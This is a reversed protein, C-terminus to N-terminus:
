PSSQRESVSAPPPAPLDPAASGLTEMAQVAEFDIPLFDRQRELGAAELTRGIAVAHVSAILVYADQPLDSPAVVRVGAIVSGAKAPDSDVFGAVRGGVMAVLREVRRGGSGAGWVFLPRRGPGACRDEVVLRLRIELEAARAKVLAATLGARAQEGQRNAFDLTGRLQLNAMELDLLRRHLFRLAEACEAPRERMLAAYVRRAAREMCEQDTSMSGPLARYGCLAGEVVHYLPCELAVRMWFGTDAWGAMEREVAMGGARLALTRRLLPVHPPFLGGSFLVEFLPMPGALRRVQVLDGPQRTGDADIFYGNCLVLGIAPNEDLVRGQLAFKHPELRDDADLFNIYEGTAAALGANRAAGLGQNAQRIVRVRSDGAEGAIAPWSGDTSGDDVVVVELDAVTQALASRIAEGVYRETNYCPIIISFKPM